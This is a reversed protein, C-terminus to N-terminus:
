CRDDSWTLSLYGVVKHVHSLIDAPAIGSYLELIKHMSEQIKVDSNYWVDKNGLKAMEADQSQAM